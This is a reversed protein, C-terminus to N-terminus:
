QRESFMKPKERRKRKGKKKRGGEKWAKKRHTHHSICSSIVGGEVSVNLYLFARKREERERERGGKM